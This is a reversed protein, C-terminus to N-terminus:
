TLKLRIFNNISGIYNLLPFDKHTIRYFTYNM